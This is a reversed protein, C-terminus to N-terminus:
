WGLSAAIWFFRAVRTPSNKADKSHYGNGEQNYM